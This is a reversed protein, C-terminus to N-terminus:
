DALSLFLELVLEESRPLEEVEADLLLMM